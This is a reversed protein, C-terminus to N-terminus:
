VGGRGRGFGAYVSLGSSRQARARHRPRAEACIGRGNGNDDYLSLPDGEAQSDSEQEAEASAAPAGEAAAAPEVEPVAVIEMAVSPCSELVALAALAERADMSLGYRRKVAVVRNVFWCQNLEPLWEAVDKGVKQDRNLCDAWCEYVSTIERGVSTRACRDRSLGAM